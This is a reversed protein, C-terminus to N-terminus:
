TNDLNLSNIILEMEKVIDPIIKEKIFNELEIIHVENPIEKKIDVERISSDKSSLIKIKFYIFNEEEIQDVVIYYEPIYHKFKNNENINIYGGNVLQQNENIAKFDKDLLKLNKIKNFILVSVANTIYRNDLPSNFHDLNKKNVGQLELGSLISISGRNIKFSKDGSLNLFKDELKKINQILIQNEKSVKEYYNKNKFINEADEYSITDKIEPLANKAKIILSKESSSLEEKNNYSPSSIVLAGAGVLAGKKVVKKIKEFNIKM